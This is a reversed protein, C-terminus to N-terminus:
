AADKDFSLTSMLGKTMLAANRGARQFMFHVDDKSICFRMQRETAPPALIM